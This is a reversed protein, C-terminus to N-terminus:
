EHNKEVIRATRAKGPERILKGEQELERWHHLVSSQAIQLVRNIDPITPYWSKVIRFAKMFEYIKRRRENLRLAPNELREVVYLKGASDRGVGWYKM